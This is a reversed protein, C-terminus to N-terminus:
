PLQPKQQRQNGGRVTPKEKIITEKGTAKENKEMVAKGKLGAAKESNKPDDETARLSINAEREGLEVLNQVLQEMQREVRRLSAEQNRSIMEQNKSIMEQNKRIEEQEITTMEQVKM